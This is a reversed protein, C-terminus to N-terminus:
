TPSRPALGIYHTGRGDSVLQRREDEQLAGAHDRTIRPEIRGLDVDHQLLSAGRLAHGHAHTVLGVAAAQAGPERREETM